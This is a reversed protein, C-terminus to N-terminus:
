KKVSNILLLKLDLTLYSNLASPKQGVKKCVSKIHIDFSKKDILVGFLKENNISTIETGNLNIKYPEDQNSILMYYFKGPNPLLVIRM